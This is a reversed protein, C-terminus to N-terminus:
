LCGPCIKPRRVDFLWTPLKLGRAIRVAGGAERVVSYLLSALLEKDVGTLTELPRLNISDTHILHLRWGGCSKWLKALQGLYSVSEYNNAEALRLLYGLFNEDPLPPPTRLLRVPNTM